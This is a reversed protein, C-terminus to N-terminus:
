EDNPVEMHQDIIVQRMFNVREELDSLRQDLTALRLYNPFAALTLVVLLLLLVVIFGHALWDAIERLTAM